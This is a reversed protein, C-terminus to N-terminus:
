RPLGYGDEGGRVTGGLGGRLGLLLIVERLGGLEYIGNLLFSVVHLNGGQSVHNLKDIGNGAYAAEFESRFGNGFSWGLAAAYSPGLNYTASGTSSNFQAGVGLSGYPGVTPDALAAGSLALTSAAGLLAAAVRKTTDKMM